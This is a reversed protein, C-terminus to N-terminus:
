TEEKEGGLTSMMPREDDLIKELRVVEGLSWAQFPCGRATHPPEADAIEPVHGLGPLDPRLLQPSLFRQRAEAKKEPTDGYARLWAEVFPGALWPWVTGQHYAGDREAPGGEYRACYGPEGPALSRLGM